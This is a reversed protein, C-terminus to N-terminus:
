LMRHRVGSDAGRMRVHFGRQVYKILEPMSPVAIQNKSHHKTEGLSPDAVRFRGDKYRHPVFLEGTEPHYRKM